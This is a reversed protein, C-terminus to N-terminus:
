IRPSLFARNECVFGVIKPQEKMMQHFHSQVVPDSLVQLCDEPTRFNGYFPDEMPPGQLSAIVVAITFM